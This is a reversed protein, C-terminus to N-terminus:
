GPPLDYLVDEFHEFKGHFFSVVDDSIEITQKKKCVSCTDDGRSDDVVVFLHLMEDLLAEVELWYDSIYAYVQYSEGLLYRLLGLFPVEDLVRLEIQELCGLLMQGFFLFRASFPQLLFGYFHGIHMVDWNFNTRELNATVPHDVIKAFKLL